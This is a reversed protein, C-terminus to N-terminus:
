AKQVDFLRVFNVDSLIDYIEESINIIKIKNDEQKVIKMLVRLGASAIYEFQEFDFVLNDQKNENRIRELETEIEESNNRSLRGEFGITLVSDDQNKIFVRDM